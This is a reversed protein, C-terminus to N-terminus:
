LRFVSEGLMLRSVVATDNMGAEVILRTGELRPHTARPLLCRIAETGFLAHGSPTASFQHHRHARVFQRAQRRELLSAARITDAEPPNPWFLDPFTLGLNDTEGSEPYILRAYDIVRPHCFCHSASQNAEAALNARTM